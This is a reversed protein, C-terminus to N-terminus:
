GPWLRREVPEFPRWDVSVGGPRLSVGLLLWPRRTLRFYAGARHAGGERSEVFCAVVPRGAVDEGESVVAAAVIRLADAAEKLEGYVRAHAEVDAEGPAPVGGFAEIEGEATLAFATPALRGFRELAALVFANAERLPAHPFGPPAAILSDSM